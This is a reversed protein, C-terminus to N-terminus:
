LSFNIPIAYSVKVPKGEEIGPKFNPMNRVIRMAEEDLLYHVGKGIKVNTVKGEEDVIFKVIVKGQIKGIAAEKPYRLNFAVYKRLAEPGGPFEPMKSPKTFVKDDKYLCFGQNSLVLNLNMSSFVPINEVKAPNFLPPESFIQNLLDIFIPALESLPEVQTIKGKKNISVRLDIRTPTTIEDLKELKASRSKLYENFADDGGTYSAKEDPNDFYIDPVVAEGSFLKGASYVGQQTMNGNLDFARFEGDKLNEKYNGCFYLQGNEYWIKYEGDIEKGYRSVLLQEKGNSFYSIEQTLVGAKFTSKTEITGDNRFNVQDGDLVVKKNLLYNTMQSLDFKKELCIYRDNTQVSGDQYFTKVFLHDPSAPDYSVECDQSIGANLAMRTKGVIKFSHNIEQSLGTFPLIELFAIIVVMALKPKNISLPTIFNYM